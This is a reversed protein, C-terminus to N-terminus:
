FKYYQTICKDYESTFTVHPMDTYYHTYHKYYRETGSVGASIKFFRRFLAYFSGCM